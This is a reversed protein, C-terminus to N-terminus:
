LEDVAELELGLSLASDREVDIAHLKRGEGGRRHSADRVVPLTETSREAGNCSLSGDIRSTLESMEHFARHPGPKRARIVAVLNVLIFFVYVLYNALSSVPEFLGSCELPELLSLRM